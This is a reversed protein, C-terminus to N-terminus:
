DPACCTILFGPSWSRSVPAEIMVANAAVACDPRAKRQQSRKKQNMMEEKSEVRTRRSLTETESVTAIVIPRAEWMHPELCWRPMQDRENGKGVQLGEQNEPM